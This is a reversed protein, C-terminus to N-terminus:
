AKQIKFLGLVKWKLFGGFLHYYGPILPWYAFISKAYKQYFLFNKRVNYKSKIDTLMRILAKWEGKHNIGSNSTDNWIKLLPHALVAIGKLKARYTFDIDGHYLPFSVNDWYGILDFVEKPILTGMGTLWDAEQLQNFEESDNRDFGIMFKRGSRPNFYGGFSWIVQKSKYIKSGIIRDSAAEKMIEDLITFYDPGPIIDNNWLLVFDCSLKDFAYRAGANMAGSWWLNGDGQILHVSPMNHRIWESTGDSSGDDIVVIEATYNQFSTKLFSDQLDLICKRTFDIGNHVPILIAIKRM